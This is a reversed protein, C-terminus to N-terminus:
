AKDPHVYEGKRFLVIRRILDTPLPQDNPLQIASKSVKYGKLDDSFEKLLEDSWPSSLSIHNSYASYYILFFKGIKFTPIQYSIVEEVGPVTEHVIKRIQQMREQIEVPFTTQYEDITKFDTKAM